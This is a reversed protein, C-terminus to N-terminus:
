LFTWEINKEYRGRPSVNHEQVNMFCQFLVLFLNEKHIDFIM